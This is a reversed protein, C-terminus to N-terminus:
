MRIRVGFQLQRPQGFLDNGTAQIYAWRNSSNLQRYFDEYGAFKEYSEEYLSTLWGDSTPSGTTPYVNIVNKTNLINKALAFVTATVPGLEVDYALSLDITGIWPTRSAKLPEVRSQTGANQLSKVGVNWATSSCGCSIFDEIEKTFPVGSLAAAIIKLEIGEAVSGEPGVYHLQAQVQVERQYDLPLMIAPLLMNEGMLEQQNSRPASGNGVQRSFGISLDLTAGFNTHTQLRLDLGMSKSEGSNVWSPYPRLLPHLTVLGLRVQNKMHKFHIRSSISFVDNLNWDLGAETHQTRSAKVPFSLVNTGYNNSTRSDENLLGSLVLNDHQVQNQPLINTYSGSAAFLRFRDVRIEISGRPLFYVEVTSSHFKSENIFIYYYWPDLYYLPGLMGDSNPQDGPDWTPINNSIWQTRFGFRLTMADDVIRNDVDVAAFSPRRPADFGDDLENGEVSYGINGGFGQYTLFGYQKWHARKDIESTFTRDNDGDKDTDLYSRLSSINLVSFKRLTWWETEGRLTVDWAPTMRIEAGSSIARRNQREKWFSNNPTSPDNFVFNHITSWPDPPTYRSRFGTYGVSANAASDPFIQWNDGFDPDRLGAQRDYVSVQVNLKVSESLRHSGEVAVFTASTRITPIRDLRFFNTVAGPWDVDKQDETSVNGFARVAPGFAVSRLNFQVISRGSSQGPIANRDVVFPGPLPVGAARNYWQSYEDSVLDNRMPELYMPFRNSEHSFEAAIFVDSELPLPGGLTMVAGSTGFSSTRFFQEGARAFRDSFYAAEVSWREGGNRLEMDIVGGGSAGLTPGYAGNHATVNELMEPLFPIGPTNSWRNLISIGGFRYELEGERSGRAYLRNNVTAIGPVLSLLSTLSRDPQMRIDFRTFRESSWPTSADATVSDPPSEQASIRATILLLLFTGRSFIKM